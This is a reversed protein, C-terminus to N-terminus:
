RKRASLRSVAVSSRRAASSSGNLTNRHLPMMFQTLTQGLPRLGVRAMPLIRVMSSWCPVQSGEVAAVIQGTSQNRRPSFRHSLREEFAHAVARVQRTAVHPVHFGQELRKQFIRIGHGLLPALVEVLQWRDGARDIGVNGVARDDLVELNQTAVPQPRSRFGDASVNGRLMLALLHPDGFQEAGITMSTVFSRGDVGQPHHLARRRRNEIQGVVVQRRRVELGHELGTREEVAFLLDLQPIHEIRQIPGITARHARFVHVDDIRRLLDPHM